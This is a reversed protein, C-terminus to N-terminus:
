KLIECSVFRNGSVDKGRTYTDIGGMGAKHIQSEAVGKNELYEAVTNARRESLLKNYAASGYTNDCYAFINVRYDPHAKLFGALKDLADNYQPKISFANSDFYLKCSLERAEALLAAKEAALREAEARAKAEAEAQAKAKAEAAAKAKAEAEARAKAEAAAREAAALDEQAIAKGSKKTKPGFTYVLGALLQVNFDPTGVLKSNVADPLLHGVAEASIAINETVPFRYGFGVRGAVFAKPANWMGKFYEIETWSVDVKGAGNATGLVLGGGLLFYFDRLRQFPHWLFDAQLRLFNYKYYEDTKVVYGKGSLGGLGLRIDGPASFRYGANLSFAPSMMGVFSGEGSSVSSGAQFEGYSYPIFTEQARAAVLTLPLMALILFLKKM